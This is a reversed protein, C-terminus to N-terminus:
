QAAAGTAAVDHEHLEHHAHLWEGFTLIACAQESCDGHQLVHSLVKKADRFSFGEEVRHGIIDEIDSKCNDFLWCLREEANRKVTKWYEDHM